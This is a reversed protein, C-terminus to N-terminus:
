GREAGECYGESARSSTLFTCFFVGAHGKILGYMMKNEVEPAIWGKPVANTMTKM